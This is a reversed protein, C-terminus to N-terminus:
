LYQDLTQQLMNKVQEKLSAPQLIKCNAGMSLIKMCFEPNINVSIELKCSKSTEKIIQQSIHLPELKVLKHFPAHVTLVVKTAKGDGEMIGTAHQFFLNSDFDSRSKQRQELVTLTKIRDLAFTLYDKREEVWGIMYWRNRHEKLLYPIVDYLKVENKYINDYSITLKYRSNLAQYISAIWDYGSISVAKEFQVYKNSASDTEGLGLNFGADIKEIASKFNSFVPVEKYQYLLSAAYQLAEWEEPELNLGAISFGEEAYAYGKEKKNYVIPASFGRPTSEKMANIDKEITSKSIDVGLKEYCAAALKELTPFRRQKNNLCSDIVRYRTYASKTVPM